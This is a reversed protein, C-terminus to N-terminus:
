RMAREMWIRRLFVLAPDCIENLALTRVIALGAEATGCWAVRAEYVMRDRINILYVTSPFQMNAPMAIRAGDQSLDRITCDIGHAGSDCAIVGPLLVRKRRKPRRELDFGDARGAQV